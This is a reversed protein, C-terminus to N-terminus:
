ESFLPAAREDPRFEHYHSAEFRGQNFLWGSRFEQVYAQTARPMVLRERSTQRFVTARINKPHTFFRATALVRASFAQEQFVPPGARVTRSGTPISAWVPDTVLCPVLLFVVMRTLFKPMHPYESM